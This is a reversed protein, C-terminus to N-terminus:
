SYAAHNRIAEEIQEETINHEKIYQQTQKYLILRAIGNLVYYRTVKGKGGGFEALWQISPDKTLQDEIEFFYASIFYVLTLLNSLTTFDPIQISEWGLVDKCFKFVGEIKSRKMYIEFVMEALLATTVDFNSILLMPEKFLRKGNRQYITVRVVSYTKNNIELYNWEFIGKLDHFLKNKYHIRRYQKETSNFFTQYKLKVNQEKGNNDIIIQNSNRSIKSRVVFLNGINTEFEFLQADDFGRDYVDVIVAQPNEKRVAETIVQVHKQTITKLNHGKGNELLESIEKCRAVDKIKNAHYNSLEAQNLYDFSSTSFPTSQLLRLEKGKYNVVVSNHTKYGNILKNDFDRVKCLDPAKSSHPKRIESPDHLMILYDKDRFYDSANLLLSSNLKEVDVINKLSGDLM